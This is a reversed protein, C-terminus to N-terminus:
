FFFFGDVGAWFECGMDLNGEFNCRHAGRILKGWLIRAKNRADLTIEFPTVFGDNDVAVVYYKVPIDQSDLPYCYIAAQLDYRNNRIQSRVLSEGSRSGMRKLDWITRLGDRRHGTADVIGKHLFGSYFFSVPSQFEFFDPNLLGHYAVTSNGRIATALADAENCQEQTILQRGKALDLISEYEYLLALTEASPKKAGIQASTPKKFGSPLIFYTKEFDQPTFLLSDLLSGETMAATQQRTGTIYDYLAAPSHELAVLRSFSLHSIPAKVAAQDAVIQHTSANSM